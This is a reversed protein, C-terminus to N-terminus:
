VLDVDTQLAVKGGIQHSNHPMNDASVTRDATSAHQNSVAPKRRNQRSAKLLKAEPVAM